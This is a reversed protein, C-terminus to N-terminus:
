PHKVGFFTGDDYIFGDVWGGHSDFYGAIQGANNIASIYTDGGFQSYPHEVAPFVYNAAGASGTSVGLFLVFVGFQIILRKM